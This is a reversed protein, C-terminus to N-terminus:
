VFPDAPTVYSSSGQLVSGKGLAVLPRSHLLFRQLINLFTVLALPKGPADMLWLTQPSQGMKIDLGLGLGLLTFRGLIFSSSGFSNPPM